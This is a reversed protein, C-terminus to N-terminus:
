TGETPLGLSQWEQWGGQYVYVPRDSSRALSAAVAESSSCGANCYVVIAGIHRRQPENALLASAADPTIASAIRGYKSIEVSRADVFLSRGTRHLSLATGLSIRTVSPRSPSTVAKKTAQERPQQEPLVAYIVAFFLFSGTFFRGYVPANDNM